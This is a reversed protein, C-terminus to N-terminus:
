VTLTQAPVPAPMPAAANSGTGNFTYFVEVHRGFLRDFLSDAEATVPDYGYGPVHGRNAAELAAMVRPHVPACNDSEFGRNGSLTIMITGGKHLGYDPFGACFIQPM